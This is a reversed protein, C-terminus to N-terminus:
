QRFRRGNGPQYDTIQMKVDGYDSTSIIQLPVRDGDDSIWISFIRDTDPLRAGSRDLKYTTADFRLTPLEGLETVLKEKAKITMDIHWLYRSRLVEVAIKSGPSGEWARMAILFANYDWVDALSAKQVEPTPADDNLRFSMPFTDGARQHLLAETREKDTGNKAYEDALWRLSRGTSVDIWSSFYDDVKVAFNALGVSKAHSQVVIAPKGGVEAAEVGVSIQYQALEFGKLQVRYTMSEGPTILPPGDPLQNMAPRPVTPASSSGSPCGSLGIVGIVGLVGFVGLTLSSPLSALPSRRM